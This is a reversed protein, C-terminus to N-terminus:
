RQTTISRVGTTTAPTGAESGDADAANLAQAGPVPVAHGFDYSIQFGFTKHSGTGMATEHRFLTTLTWGNALDLDVGFGALWNRQAATDLALHYNTAAPLTVYNIDVDSRGGLDQRYELMWYPRVSGTSLAHFYSGEVGLALMSNDVHQRGYRLNYIGAGAEQYADLTTRSADLRGYSSLSMAENRHEYGFTLSGFQQKGDREALAMTGAVSSWRRLDFGIDGVGLMADAFLHDGDRWLGYVSLSRYQGNVESGNVGINSDSWGMGSAFGILWSKGVRRDAGFSLGEAHFDFGSNGLAGDRDGLSVRGGSWLGWGGFTAADDGNLLAGPALNISPGFGSFLSVQLNNDSGDGSRNRQQRLRERINDQQARAFRVSADVQAQLSGVVEPDKTPDPRGSVTLTATVSASAYNATAAQTATLTTVGAGTMTVTRGSITAVAADSSSFTFAGTSNSTPDVLDFAAEGYVKVLNAFGTITPIAQNVTLTATITDSTHNADAAQTATITTAGAGVITVVDGSVTAVTPDSSMYTFAGTSSTSPPTLTFAADGFTKVMDSFGSLGPAAQAVTLDATITGSTFAATAAQTATITTTGTGVITVVDGSITAVTTDSSQYSFAGPSDSTPPTLTFDADGYTANLNPFNSLTPPGVPVVANSPGSPLSDGVANTAVVTFTYSVGNTLGNVAIPTGAGTAVINGPTSTVTYSLIPSGGDNLPASFTVTATTNGATATGITPADPVTTVPLADAMYVIREFGNNGNLSDNTGCRWGGNLVGGGTHICLRLPGSTGPGGYAGFSSDMIDCSNKSAGVGGPGFGWSWSSNYYWDSGNATHVTASDTGTDFLVDARPAQALLTLTPNGTPRCALMLRGGNCAAQISALSAGSSGYTDRHCETWGGATVTAVAVNTQPGVPVYTPPAAIASQCAILVFALALLSQWILRLSPALPRSPTTVHLNARM